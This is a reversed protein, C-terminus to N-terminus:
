PQHLQITRSDSEAEDVIHVRKGSYPPSLRYGPGRMGLRRLKASLRLLETLKQPNVKANKKILRKIELPHPM